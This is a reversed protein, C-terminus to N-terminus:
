RWTLRRSRHVRRMSSRMRLAGLIYSHPISYVERAIEMGLLTRCAADTTNMIAPTIQSRGERDSSRARNPLRVVPVEGFGHEDRDYVSWAATSSGDERSMFITENPLYLVATFVGEAEFAQYGNVVRRTRPDWTVTMNLPSEVTVLPADGPVDPSGVVLYGRGAVLSDLIALPFEGQMDNADWFEALESDVETAGPLRFGSVEARQVLPDVCVRPWDVVTRVGALQPPISIGLNALRQLGDYYAWSSLMQPVQLALKTSLGTILQQEDDTLGEVNPAPLTWGAQPGLLSVYSSPATV